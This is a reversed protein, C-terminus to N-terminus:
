DLYKVVAPPYVVGGIFLAPLPLEGGIGAGLHIRSIQYQSASLVSAEKSPSVSMDRNEILFKSTKREVGVGKVKRLHISGTM